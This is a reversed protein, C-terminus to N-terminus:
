VFERVVETTEMGRGFGIVLLVYMCEKALETGQTVEM